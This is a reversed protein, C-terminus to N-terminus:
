RSRWYALVAEAQFRADALANHKTGKFQVLKKCQTLNNFTRFCMVNWYIWPFADEGKPHHRRFINEIISIDFSAGNGWVVIDKKNYVSLERLFDAFFEDLSLKKTGELFVDQADKEQSLWWQLTSASIKRGNSIQDQLNFECYWESIIKENDFAVVGLSLVASQPETGLTEFDLMVNVAM